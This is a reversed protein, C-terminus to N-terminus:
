ITGSVLARAYKQMIAFDRQLSAERVDQIDLRLRLEAREELMGPQQHELIAYSSFIGPKTPQVVKLWEEVLLDNAAGFVIAQHHPATPRRGIASMEGEIIHQAQATEDIGYRAILGSLRSFSKAGPSRLKRMNMLEGNTGVRQRTEVGVVKEGLWGMPWLAAAVSLDVARREPSNSYAAGTKM